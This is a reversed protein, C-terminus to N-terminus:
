ELINPKTLSNINQQITKLIKQNINKIDPSYDISLDKDPSPQKPTRLTEQTKIDIDKKLTPNKKQLKVSCIRWTKKFNKNLWKQEM